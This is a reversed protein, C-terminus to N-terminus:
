GSWMEIRISLLVAQVIRFPWVGPVCRIELNVGLAFGPSRNARGVDCQAIILMGYKGASACSQHNMGFSVIM